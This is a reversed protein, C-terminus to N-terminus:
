SHTPDIGGRGGLAEIAHLPVAKGKGQQRYLHELYFRYKKYKKLTKLM